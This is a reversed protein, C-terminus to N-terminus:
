LHLRSGFISLHSKKVYVIFLLRGTLTVCSFHCHTSDRTFCHKCVCRHSRSRFKTDNEKATVRKNHLKAFHFCHEPETAPMLEIRSSLGPLTPCEVESFLLQQCCCPLASSFLRRVFSEKDYPLPSFATYSVVLRHTVMPSHRRSVALERIGDNSSQGDSLTM